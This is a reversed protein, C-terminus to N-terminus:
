GYATIKYIKKSIDGSYGYIEESGEDSNYNHEVLKKIFYKKVNVDIRLKLLVQRFCHHIPLVM